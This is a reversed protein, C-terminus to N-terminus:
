WESWMIEHLSNPNKKGSLGYVPRETEEQFTGFLRDWIIFIGGHNKDLYVLNSGHHVRHHSPTNFLYEFIPHLKGILETHLWTQYVMCLQFSAFVWIPNFGVFPLWLWFLFQGSVQTTWSQRFAVSVNYHEASHHVSHAAWFWAVTHSFRHYWYFSFDTLLILLLVSGFTDQMEFIRFTYSLQFAGYLVGKSIFSSFFLELGICINNLTELSHYLHKREKWDHNLEVFFMIVLLSLGIYQIYNVM